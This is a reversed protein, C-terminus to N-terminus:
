LLAKCMTTIKIFKTYCLLLSLLGNIFRLDINGIKRLEEELPSLIKFQSDSSMVMLQRGVLQRIPM